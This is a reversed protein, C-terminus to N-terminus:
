FRVQQQADRWEDKTLTVTGGLDDKIVIKGADHNVEVTPCCGQVGCLTYKIVGRVGVADESKTEAM